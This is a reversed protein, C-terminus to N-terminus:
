RPVGGKECGNTAGAKPDYRRGGHRLAPGSGARLSGFPAPSKAATAASPAFHVASQTVVCDIRQDWSDDPLSDLLQFSYSLGLAALGHGSEALFRDYYGGGRGLRQGRVSFAVGPVFILTHRMLHADAPMPGGPEPVGFHGPRLDGPSTVEGILLSGANPEAVPYFVRRGTTLADNLMLTTSVENGIPAYLLVARARRYLELGMAVAQVMQSFAIAQESPLAARCLQFVKRLRHKQDAM